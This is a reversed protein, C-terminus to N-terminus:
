LNRNPKDRAAPQGIGDLISMSELGSVPLPWTGGAPNNLSFRQIHCVAVIVAAFVAPQRIAYGWTCATVDAGRCGFHGRGRERQGVNKTTSPPPCISLLIFPSLRDDPLQSHKVSGM